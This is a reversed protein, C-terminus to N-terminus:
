FMMFFFIKCTADVMIPYRSVQGCHGRSTPRPHTGGALSIDETCVTGDSDSANLCSGLKMPVSQKTVLDQM